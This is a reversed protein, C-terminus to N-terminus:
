FGVVVFGAGRTQMAPAVGGHEYSGHRETFGFKADANKRAIVADDLDSFYGLFYKKKNSNIEAAYKKNKNCFWVGNPLGSKKNKQGRRNKGNQSKTVNRLNSWKNNLGDGDIHDVNIPWEGTVIAWIVRHVGIKFNKLTFTKYNNTGCKFSCGAEKGANWTNWAAM